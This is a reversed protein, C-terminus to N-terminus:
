KSQVAALARLFWLLPSLEKYWPFAAKGALTALTQNARVWDILFQCLAWCETNLKNM